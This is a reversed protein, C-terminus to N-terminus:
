ARGPAEVTGRRQLRRAILWCLLAWALGAMWGGLVDTPYHVGLYVRSGGVLSTMLLAVSMVYARVRRRAALRAILSGLTLYIVAALMSHGSPFSPSTVAALHPVIDPRERAFVLKMVTTLLGGGGAAIAVLWMSAYKRALALYGCVILVAITLFTRGGLVTIDLAAQILWNPGIPIEPRDPRRLLRLFWVDFDKTDGELMEEAIKAFGFLALVIAFATVLVVAEQRAIWKLSVGAARRFAQILLLARRGEASV